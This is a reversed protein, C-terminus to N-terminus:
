RNNKIFQALSRISKMANQVSEQDKVKIGYNREILVIIELADISDLGLGDGFLPADIDIEDPSLDELNLALILDDKLTKITQEM